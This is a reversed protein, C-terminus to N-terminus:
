APRAEVVLDEGTLVVRHDEDLEDVENLYAARMRM